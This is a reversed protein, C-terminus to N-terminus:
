LTQGSPTTYEVLGKDRQRHPDNNIIRMEVLLIPVPGSPVPVAPFGRGFELTVMNTTVQKQEPQLTMCGAELLAQIKDKLIYCDQTTHHVMRHYLCYNPDDTKSADEPRRIEPLKIKKGKLLSKFITMVQEGKFDYHKQFRPDSPAGKQKQPVKPSSTTEVAMVDKGKSQPSSRPPGQRDSGRKPQSEEAEMRKLIIEAQEGQWVLEKWSRTEVAGMKSLVKISINNQCMELLTAESIAERSHLSRNRFRKVFDSTSKGKKQKEALLTSMSVETDDDFFRALFLREMDALDQYIRTRIKPVM